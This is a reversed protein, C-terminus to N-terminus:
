FPRYWHKRPKDLQKPKYVKSIDVRGKIGAVKATSAFQHAAIEKWPSPIIFPYEKGDNKGFSALWLPAPPNVFGCAALYSSYSYIIPQLGTATKVRELFRVAWRGYSADPHGTEIDLCPVLDGYDGFASALRALFFEAEERPTNGKDPRAFHYGGVKFGARRAQRAFEKAFGDTFNTGESIKVYLRRHGALWALNFNHGSGNNNSLDLM